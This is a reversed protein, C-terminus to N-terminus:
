SPKRRHHTSTEELLDHAKLRNYLTRRSVGLLRAALTRNYRTRRLASRLAEREADRRCGELTGDSESVDSQALVPTASAPSKPLSHRSLETRVDDSSIVPRDSLIALREIVNSMERVNGPWRHQRFLDMAGAEFSLKGLGADSRVTDLFYTALVEVDAPRERLAPMFLPVVNLRYFLDERFTGKEVMAELDRHTAAIFRVDARVTETGGLREYERDQLLRLLKTQLTRPVDGIEDLFLTGGDALAVRGPKASTAGTFAGKEYGFLESELLTDPLAACHVKILPGHAVPSRRHLERAALDKGTGSEGRVLVTGMSRAARKLLELCQKMAPSPGIIFPREGGPLSPPGSRYGPREAVARGIATTLDGRDIPKLIFDRAGARMAKVADPVGGHATVMIVPLEPWHETIEGLLTQGDLQPMILDCLVVDFPRQELIELAEAGSGVWLAEFGEAAL